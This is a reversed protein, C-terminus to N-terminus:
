FAITWGEKADAKTYSVGHVKLGAADLLTIIGGDNSLPVQQPMVVALTEGAGISGSLTHKAKSRNALAWGTLDIANPTRNLLTVTEREPSPGIANVLAAAIYVVADTGGAIPQGPEEGDPTEGIAHGTLDDTHWAQSQFALFVGVWQEPVGDAASFQILLAGDQWVGNDHAFQGVNGQNM